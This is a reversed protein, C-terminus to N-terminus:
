VDNDKDRYFDDFNRNFENFNYQGPSRDFVAFDIRRFFNEIRM